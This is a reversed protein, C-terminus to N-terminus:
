DLRVLLHTFYWRDDREEAGIAARDFDGLLNRRHPQSALWGDIAAGVPDTYGQNYAVNEGVLGAPYADLIIEVRGEFGAHGISVRGDAMDQCHERALRGLLDDAGLRSLGAAARLDDIRRMADQEVATFRFAETATDVSVDAGCAALWLAIV